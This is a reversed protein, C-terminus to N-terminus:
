PLSRQQQRLHAPQLFLRAAAILVRQIEGALQRLDGTDPRQFPILPDGAVGVMQEYEAVVGWMESALRALLEEVRQSRLTDRAAWAVRREIPFVGEVGITRSVWKCSLAIIGR